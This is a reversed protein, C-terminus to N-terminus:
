CQNTSSFRPADALAQPPSHDDSTSEENIHPIRRGLDKMRLFNHLVCTAKVCVEAVEPSTGIVHRYMRWQSALIGFACEIVLRARSLRYNFVRRELPVHHGPFPHLLNTMLPFGADGVFTYPLPWWLESGPIATAPPIGLTGDRLGEAFAAYQLTGSDSTRGYGGVDVVRFLYHADVVALLVSTYSSKYNFFLSGSNRPSQIVVHKSYVAGLCNPFNWREQFQAAIARWDEVKSVPM